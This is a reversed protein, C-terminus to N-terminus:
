IQSSIQFNITIILLKLGLKKIIRPFFVITKFIQPSQKPKPKIKHHLFTIQMRLSSAMSLKRILSSLHCFRKSTGFAAAISISSGAAASALV